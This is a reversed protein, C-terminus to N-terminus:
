RKVKLRVYTTIVDGGLRLKVKIKHTGRTATRGVKLSLKVTRSAGPRPAAVDKAHTTGGALRLAKPAVATLTATGKPSAVTGNRLVFALAAVHGRRVSAASARSVTLTFIGNRGNSGDTGNRGAPGTAGTDGKAGNTGNTGPDGKDGKVPTPDVVDAQAPVQPITFDDVPQGTPLLRGVQAPVRPDASEDLVDTRVFKASISDKGFNFLLVAPMTSQSQSWAVWPEADLLGDYNKGTTSQELYVTGKGPAVVKPSLKPKDANWDPTPVANLPYSRVNHADHGSVVFEVGYKDMLPMIDDRFEPDAYEPYVRSTKSHFPPQHMVVVQFRTRRVAAALDQDLWQLEHQWYAPFAAPHVGPSAELVTWHVGEYDYSYSRDEQGTPGNDPNPFHAYYLPSATGAQATNKYEHDGLASMFPVSGMLKLANSNDPVANGSYTYTGQLLRDYMSEMTGDNMNDGSSVVFAPRTPQNYVVGDAATAGVVGQISYDRAARAGFNVVDDGDDVHVEGYTAATYEADGSHATRFTGPVYGAPTQTDAVFWDYSTNPTLGTFTGTFFTYFPGANNDIGEADHRGLPLVICDAPAPTATVCAAAGGSGGAPRAYATANTTVDAANENFTVTMTTAADGTLALHADVIAANAAAPSLAAAVTTAALLLRGRRPFQPVM